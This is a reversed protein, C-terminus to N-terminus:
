LNVKVIEGNVEEWVQDYGGDPREEIM